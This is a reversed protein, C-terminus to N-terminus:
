ERTGKLLCDGRLVELVFRMFLFGLASRMERNFVAEALGLYGTCDCVPWLLWLSGAPGNPLSRRCGDEKLNVTTRRRAEM